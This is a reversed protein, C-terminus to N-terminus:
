KETQDKKNLFILLDILFSIQDAPWERILEFIESNIPTQSVTARDSVLLAIDVQLIEAIEHLRPLSVKASGREIQSVHSETMGLKESLVSQTMAAKKRYLAIRRGISIYDTM